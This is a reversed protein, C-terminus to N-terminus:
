RPQPTDPCPKCIGKAELTEIFRKVDAELTERSVEFVEHLHEVIQEVSLGSQVDEIIKSAVINTSYYKGNSRNLLVGGDPTSVAKVNSVLELKTM